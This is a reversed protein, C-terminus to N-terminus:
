KPITGGQGILMSIMRNVAGDLDRYRRIGNRLVQNSIDIFGRQTLEQAITLHLFIANASSDYEDGFAQLDEILQDGNPRRLDHHIIFSLVATRARESESTSKEFVESSVIDFVQGAKQEDMQAACFAIALASLRAAHKQEETAAPFDAIRKSLVLGRNSIRDLAKRYENPVNGYIEWQRHVQQINTELLTLEKIAAKLDIKNEARGASPPRSTSPDKEPEPETPEDIPDVKQVEADEVLVSENPLTPLISAVLKPDLQMFYNAALGLAAVLVAGVLIGKNSPRPLVM